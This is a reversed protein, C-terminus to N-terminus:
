AKRIRNLGPFQESVKAGSDMAVAQPKNLMGVMARYASPHVGEVSVGSQELSFRYVDEASDMAVDGVLHAVERQAQSLAQARKREASVAAKIANDMAVRSVLARDQAPKPVGNEPADPADEEAEDEASADKDEDEDEAPKDDDTGVEEDPEVAEPTIKEDDEDEAQVEETLSGIIELLEDPKLEADQALASRLVARVRKDAGKKLKMVIREHFPDQDSVVVDRGARGVDVLAVHNGVINTMVGDYRRGEYEGSTMDADYHYSSSLEMQQESEIGAIAKNDWVSLSCKLYPAEFTVDSGTSGVVIEKQPDDASVPIHKSLLPLNRFTPAAKELEEPHRLLYYIKDASLGLEDCGPIESGRYPNIVAKSINSVAVHLRGDKDYHRLSSDQALLLKNNFEAIKQEIIENPTATPLLAKGDQGIASMSKDSSSSEKKKSYATLLWKKEIGRWNLSVAAEHDLSELRTRNGGSRKTNVKMERIINQLEDVVEPHKKIIKALGYGDEHKKESTGEEGWVLDIDGIDPHHLAAEAEGSKESKLKAIAGQADHYFETYIKGFAGMKHKTPQASGSGSGFQGNDSRPHKEENWAADLALLCRAKKLVIQQQINM